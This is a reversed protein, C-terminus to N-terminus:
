VQTVRVRVRVKVQALLLSFLHETLGVAKHVERASLDAHAQSRAHRLQTPNPDPNPDPYSNPDPNPDLTPTLTLTLLGLAQLQKKAETNGCLMGLNLGM